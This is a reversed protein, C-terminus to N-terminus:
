AARTSPIRRTAIPGRDLRGAEPSHAVDWGPATSRAFLELYPGPVLQEIRQRVEDPKQSHQRIPAEVLMRVSASQRHPKGRTGLLCLEVNARSWFGTGMHWARGTSSRKAWAFALTKFAFGWASMVELGQPLLPNTVWLFLVADRAAYSAVPVAKIARLDMVDYHAVAGRGDGKNSYARFKWPPDALIARYDGM